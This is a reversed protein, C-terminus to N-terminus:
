ALRPWYAGLCSDGVGSMPADGRREGDAFQHQSAPSFKRPWSFAQYTDGALISSSLSYAEPGPPTTVPMPAACLRHRVSCLSPHSDRSIFTARTGDELENEM